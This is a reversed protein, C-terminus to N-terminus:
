QCGLIFIISMMIHINNVLVFHNIKQICFKIHLKELYERRRERGDYEQWWVGVVVFRGSCAQWWVGPVVRMVACTQWWVIVVM